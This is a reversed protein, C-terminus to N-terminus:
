WPRRRHDDSAQPSLSWTKTMGALVGVRVRTCRRSIRLSHNTSALNASTSTRGTVESFTARPPSIGFLFRYRPALSQQYVDVSRAEFSSYIFLTHKDGCNSVKERGTYAIYLSNRQSGAM